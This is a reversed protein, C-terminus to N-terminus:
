EACGNNGRTETWPTGQDPPFDSDQVLPAPGGSLGEWIGQPMVWQGEVLQNEWGHSM